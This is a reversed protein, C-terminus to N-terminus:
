MVVGVEWRQDRKSFSLSTPRLNGEPELFRYTIMLSCVADRRINVATMEM